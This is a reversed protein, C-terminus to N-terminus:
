ANTNCYGRARTGPSVAGVSLPPLMLLLELLVAGVAATAACGGGGGGGVVPTAAAATAPVDAAGVRGPGGAVAANVAVAAALPSLLIQLVPLVEVAGGGAAARASAATADACGAAACGGAFTVSASGALGRSLLLVPALACGHDFGGAAAVTPSGTALAFRFGRASGGGGGAGLGAVDLALPDAAAAGGGTASAAGTGFCIGFGLGTCGRCWPLVAAGASPAFAGGGFRRRHDASGSLRQPM